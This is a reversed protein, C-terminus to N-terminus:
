FHQKFLKNKSAKPSRRKYLRIKGENATPTPIFKLGKSILGVHDDTLEHTSLNKIYKHNAETAKANRRLAKNKRREIGKVNKINRINNGKHNNTKGRTANTLGTFVCPYHEVHRNNQM